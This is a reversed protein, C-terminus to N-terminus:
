GAPPRTPARDRARGGATAAQGAASEDRLAEGLIEAVQRRMRMTTPVHDLGPEIQITLGPWNWASRRPLGLAQNWIGLSPDEAGLLVFVAVGRRTLAELAQRPRSAADGRLWQRGRAAAAALQGWLVQGIALEDRRLKLWAQPQGLARLYTAPGRSMVRVMQLMQDGSRWQFVLQNVLLLREVRPEALAAHFAHYAGSCTGQLAFRRYGRAALADIAARFDELRDTEYAHTGGEAPSRSDGLGAFDLRLSAIGQAALHRALVVASRGFGVRPDFGTNGIIVALGPPAEGAPRALIGVLAAAPGFRLPQEVWGEGALAPMPDPAAAPVADRPPHRRRLWDIARDFDALPPPHDFQAHLLAKLGEFPLTAVAAGSGRWAEACAAAAAAPGAALLLVAQDPRLAGHGLALGALRDLADRPLWCGDAELHGPEPATSAFREAARWERVQDSGSLPPGLLMLAAVDARGATAALGLLAGLRFGCVVIRTAGSLTRLRDAAARIAALWAEPAPETLEASDGSGPYDMRLTAYGAAALRDALLRLARHSVCAERGLAPCVLVATESGGGAPAHLWGFGGAILVPRM